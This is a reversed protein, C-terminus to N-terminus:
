SMSVEDPLENGADDEGPAAVLLREGVQAIAACIGDAPRGARWGAAMADAAAQWAGPDTGAHVGPGAWVAVKRDDLALYLLVGTGDRTQQLGLSEFLERARALPGDGPYRREVHVRIEGRHGREAAAIAAIVRAEEASTLSSRARPM